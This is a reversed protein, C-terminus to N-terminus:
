ANYTLSYHDHHVIVNNLRGLLTNKLFQLVHVFIDRFKDIKIEGIFLYIM